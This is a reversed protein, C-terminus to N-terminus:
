KLGKLNICNIIKNITSDLDHNDIIFDCENFANQFDIEDAKLRRNLEIEDFNDRIMARKTRLEDDVNIFFSIVDDFEKKIVKLGELTNTIIYNTDNLLDSKHIGYYWLDEINNLITSYSRYEILENKSIFEEFKKNSVFHYPNNESEYDRMPRTTTLVVFEYNLKTKLISAITDKGSGSKGVLVIKM